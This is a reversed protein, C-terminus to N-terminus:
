KILNQTEMDNWFFVPTTALILSHGSWEVHRGLQQESILGDHSMIYKWSSVANNFLATFCLLGGSYKM